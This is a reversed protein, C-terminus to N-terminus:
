KNLDKIGDLVENMTMSQNFVIQSYKVINSISNDVCVFAVTGDANFYIMVNYHGEIMDYLEGLSRNVSYFYDANAIKNRFDEEKIDASYPIIFVNPDEEGAAAKLVSVHSANESLKYEGNSDKFFGSFFLMTPKDNGTLNRQEGDYNEFIIDNPLQYNAFKKWLENIGPYKDNSTFSYIYEKMEDTLLFDYEGYVESDDKEVIRDFPVVTGDEIDEYTIVSDDPKDQTFAFIIVTILLVFVLLAIGIIKQKKNNIPKENQILEDNNM